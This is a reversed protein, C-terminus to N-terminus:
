CTVSCNGNIHPRASVRMCWQGLVLGRGWGGEAAAARGSRPPGDARAPRGCACAHVRSHTHWRGGGGGGSTRRGTRRLGGPGQAGPAGSRPLAGGPAEHRSRKQENHKEKRLSVVNEKPPEPRNKSRRHHNRHAADSRHTRPQEHSGLAKEGLLMCVCVGPGVPVGHGCLPGKGCNRTGGNDWSLEGGLGPPGLEPATSLLLLWAPPPQRSHWDPEQGPPVRGTHRSEQPDQASGRGLEKELCRGRPALIELLNDETRPDRCAM